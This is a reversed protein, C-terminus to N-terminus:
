APKYGALRCPHGCLAHDCPKPCPQRTPPLNDSHAARIMSEIEERLVKVRAIRARVAAIDDSQARRLTLNYPIM